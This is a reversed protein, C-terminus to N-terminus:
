NATFTGNITWCVSRVQDTTLAPAYYVSIWQHACRGSRNESTCPTTAYIGRNNACNQRATAITFAPATYDLSTDQSDAHACSAIITFADDAGCVDDSSRCSLGTMCQVRESCPTGTTGCYLRQCAPTPLRTNCRYGSSFRCDCEAAISEFVEITTCDIGGGHPIADVTSVDTTPIVCSSTSAPRESPRTRSFDRAAASSGAEPLGIGSRAAISVASRASRPFTARAASRNHMERLRSRRSM